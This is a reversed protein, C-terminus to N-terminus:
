ARAVEEAIAWRRGKSIMYITARSVGYEVMLDMVREGDGRRRRIALAQQPVLKRASALSRRVPDWRRSELNGRGKQMKDDANAQDTGLWLHSPRVCRRNDCSHCVLLGDPIPGYLMEWSFRHTPVQRVPADLSVFYMFHGYGGGALGGTWEWCSGVIVVKKWFREPPTSLSRTKAFVLGGSPTFAGIEGAV